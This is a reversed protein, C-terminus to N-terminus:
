LKSFGRPSEITSVVEVIMQRPLAILLAFADVCVDDYSVQADSTCRLAKLYTVTRVFSAIYRMADPGTADFIAAKARSLHM